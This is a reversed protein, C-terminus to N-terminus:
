KNKAASIIENERKKIGMEKQQQKYDATSDEYIQNIKNMKKQYATLEQTAEPKAKSKKDSERETEEALEEREAIIDDGIFNKKKQAQETPLFAKYKKRISKLDLAPVSDAAPAVPAPAKVSKSNIQDPDEDSSSDFESDIEKKKAEEAKQREIEEQKKAKTKFKVVEKHEVQRPPTDVNKVGAVSAPEPM